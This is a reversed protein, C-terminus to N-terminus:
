RRSSAGLDRGNSSNDLFSSAAHEFSGPLPGEDDMRAIDDDLNMQDRELQAREKAKALQWRRAAFGLGGVTLALGAVRMAPHAKAAKPALVLAAKVHKRKTAESWANAVVPVLASAAAIGVEIAQSRRLDNAITAASPANKRAKNVRKSAKTSAKSAQASMRAARTSATQAANAARDRATDVVDLVVARAHKLRADPLDIKQTRKRLSTM